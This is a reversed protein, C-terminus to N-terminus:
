ARSPREWREAALLLWEDGVAAAGPALAEPPAGGGAVVCLTATRPSAAVSAGLASAVMKLSVPDTAGAVSGPAVHVWVRENSLPPLLVPASAQTGDDDAAARLARRARAAAAAFRGAGAMGGGGGLEFEPSNSGPELWEGREVCARLWAPTVLHAGAAIALLVKLTRRDAGVVLHTPLLLPKESRESGSGGGSSSSFRAAEKSAFDSAISAGGGLAKVADRALSAVDDGVSTLALVVRGADVSSCRRATPLPPLAATALAAAAGGAAAAAGAASRDEGRLVSAARSPPRVVGAAPLGANAAPLTPPKFSAPPLAHLPLPRPQQSAAAATATARAM